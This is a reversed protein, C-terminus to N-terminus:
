QGRLDYVLTAAISRNGAEDIAYLDLANLTGLTLYLIFRNFGVTSDEWQGNLYLEYRLFESPTVNDTSDEWFLWLEGDQFLMGNDRFNLPTTPPQSDNPDSPPTTVTLPDSLASWNGAADRAKVTFTYTTNPQLLVIHKATEAIQLYVPAGDRYISYRLFPAADTASWALTVHGPGIGTVHVIPKTPPTTDKLLTATVTNSSGSTGGSASVAYVSFSYTRVYDFGSTFTATTSSRPVTLSHGNSCRVVYSAVGTNGAPADWALRVSWDTVGTVRLNRPTGPKKEASSALAFNSAQLYIFLCLIALRCMSEVRPNCRRMERRRIFANVNCGLQLATPIQKKM